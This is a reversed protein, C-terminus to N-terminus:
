VTGTAEIQIRLHQDPICAQTIERQEVAFAGSQQLPPGSRIVRLNDCGVDDIDALESLTEDGGPFVAQQELDVLLAHHLKHADPRVPQVLM